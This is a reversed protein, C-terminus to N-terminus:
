RKGNVQSIYHWHAYSHDLRLKKRLVKRKKKDRQKKAETSM